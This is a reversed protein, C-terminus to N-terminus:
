SSLQRCAGAGRLATIVIETTVKERSTLFCQTYRMLTRWFAQENNATSRGKRRSTKQM